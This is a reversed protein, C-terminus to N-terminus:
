SAVEKIGLIKTPTIEVLLEGEVCNRKGIRESNEEGMYRSAIKTTWLLLGKYDQTISAKGEIIVFSYPPAQEDACFSVNPNNTINKAKITASLTTFYIKEDEWVFWIPAIHPLGNKRISSIKGTKTGEILFENIEDNSMKQM